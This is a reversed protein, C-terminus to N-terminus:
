KTESYNTASPMIEGELQVVESMFLFLILVRM